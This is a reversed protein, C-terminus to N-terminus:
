KALNTTHSPQLTVGLTSGIFSQSAGRVGPWFEVELRDLLIWLDSQSDGSVM